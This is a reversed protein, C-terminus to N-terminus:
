RSRMQVITMATYYWKISDWQRNLVPALTPIEGVLDYVGALLLQFMYELRKTCGAHQSYQARCIIEYLSVPDCRWNLV